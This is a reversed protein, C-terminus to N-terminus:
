ISILHLFVSPSGQAEKLNEVLQAKWFQLGFNSPCVSLVVQEHIPVALYSTAVTATLLWNGYPLSIPPALINLRERENRMLSAM